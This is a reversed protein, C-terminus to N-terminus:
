LDPCSNALPLYHNKIFTVSYGQRFFNLLAEQYSLLELKKFFGTRGKQDFFDVM